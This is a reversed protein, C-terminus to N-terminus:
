HGSALTILNIVGAGLFCGLMCGAAIIVKREWKQEKLNRVFCISAISGTIFGGVHTSYSINENPYMCSVVIDITTSTILLSTNTMKTVSDLERWNLLLYGTQAALLGYIGGSAGVLIIWGNPLFRIGWGCGCSGGLISFNYICCTRWTYNCIELLGGCICLMIVNSILHMVNGHLLSYTWWTYAKQLEHSNFALDDYISSTQPVKYFIVIYIFAMAITHFPFRKIASKIQMQLNPQPKIPVIVHDVM